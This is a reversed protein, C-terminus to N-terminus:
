AATIAAAGIIGATGIGAGALAARNNRASISAANAQNFNSDFIDNIDVQSPFLQSQGGQTGGQRGGFLAGQGGVLQFPDVTNASNYGAVQGAFTRARDQAARNELALRLAEQFADNQGYGFGRSAQAARTDQQSRRTEYADLGPNNLGSLADTNLRSLLAAQQPNAANIAAQARPAARQAIDLMGSQAPQNVTRTRLVPRDYAPTVLVRRPDRAGGESRYVAPVHEIETYQQQQQGGPTGFLSNQLLQQDLGGYLNRYQSELAFQGPATEQRARFEDTLEQYVNRQQGGGGGGIFQAPFMGRRPAPGERHMQRVSENVSQSQFRM